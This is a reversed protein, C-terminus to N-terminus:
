ITLMASANIPPTCNDPLTTFDQKPCPTQTGEGDVVILEFEYETDSTLGAITNFVTVGPTAIVQSAFPTPANNIYINAIYTVNSAATFQYNVANTYVTLTVAPCEGSAYITDIYDKECTSGISENTFCTEATVTLTKSTDIPTATLEFRYGTPIDILELLDARFSTTNGLSDEVLIRTGQASCEKWQDTFGTSGATFIDLFQAGPTVELTAQFNLFLDTCSTVCCNEQIYQVAERLDRIAYWANGITDATSEITVNWGPISSMKGGGFLRDEEGMDGAALISQYLETTTGLADQYGILSNEVSRLADTVFKSAGSPDIKTSNVYQLESRDVKVVGLQNIAGVLGAPNLIPEGSDDGNIQDQLTQVENQLITIDSLIDCIREGIANVYDLLSLTTITDGNPGISHFCQAIPVICNEPCDSSTPDDPDGPEIGELACIRDILIQILGGLDEPRESPQIQLCSFNFAELDFMEILMCLEEAMKAVVESITDGKCLDICVLDPGQWVVCNSSVPNCGRDKALGSNTPLSM